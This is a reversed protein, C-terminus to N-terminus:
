GPTQARRRKWEAAVKESIKDLRKLEAKSLTGPPAKPKKRVPKKEDPFLDAHYDDLIDTFDEDWIYFTDYAAGGANACECGDGKKGCDCDKRGFRIQLANDIIQGYRQDTRRHIDELVELFATKRITM